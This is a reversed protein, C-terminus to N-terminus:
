RDNHLLIKHLGLLVLNRNAFIEYNIHNVLYNAQGGCLVIRLDPYALRYSEIVGNVEHILGNVIGSTMASETTKGILEQPGFDDVLPLAGTFEDMARARLELGPSINGGLYRRDATILDYTICTGADIALANQNPYLFNAGVVAAIRDKGLTEPTLYENQIPLPTNHDLILIERGNTIEALESSSLPITSSLIGSEFEIESLYNKLVTIGKDIRDVKHIGNNIFQGVKTRTNGIDIVIEM